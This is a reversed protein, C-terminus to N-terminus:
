AFNATTKRRRMATGVALFGAIMMAWTGLEPIPGPPPPAPPPAPAHHAVAVITGGDAGTFYSGVASFTPRYPYTEVADPEPTSGFYGSVATFTPTYSYSQSAPASAAGFYGGVATFTPTYSYSSTSGGNAWNNLGALDTFQRLGALGTFLTRTQGNETISFSFGNGSLASGYYLKNVVNSVAGLNQTAGTPSGVALLTATVISAFLGKRTMAM